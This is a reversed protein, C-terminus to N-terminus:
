NPFFCGRFLNNYEKRKYAVFKQCKSLDCVANHVVMRASLNLLNGRSLGYTYIRGIIKPPRHPSLSLSDISSRAGKGGKFFVSRKLSRFRQLPYISTRVFNMRNQRRKAIRTVDSVGPIRIGCKKAISVWTRSYIKGNMRRLQTGTNIISRNSFYHSSECADGRVTKNWHESNQLPARIKYHVSCVNKFDLFM